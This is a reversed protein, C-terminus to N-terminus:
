PNGKTLSNWSTSIIVEMMYFSFIILIMSENPERQARRVGHLCYRRCGSTTDCWNDM